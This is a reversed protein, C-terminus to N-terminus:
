EEDGFSAKKSIDYYMNLEKEFALDAEMQKDITSARVIKTIAGIEIYDDPCAFVKVPDVPKTPDTDDYKDYSLTYFTFLLEIAADAEDTEVVYL